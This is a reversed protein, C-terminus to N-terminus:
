RAQPRGKPRALFGIQIYRTDAAHGLSILRSGYAFARRAMSELTRGHIRYPNLGQMRIVEFGARELARRTSAFTFFRFHTRDLVGWDQYEWDRKFLLNFLNEHYRVNPLSGVLLSDETMYGSIEALFADHDTMHEIVDNCIVLDFYHRPLQAKVDDFMAALVTHMQRRAIEASPPHPEVGWIEAADDIQTCFNGEGCGIELVKLGPRLPPLLAMVEPRANDRYGKKTVATEPAVGVLTDV